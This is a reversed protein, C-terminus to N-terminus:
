KSAFAAIQTRVDEREIFFELIVNTDLFVKM